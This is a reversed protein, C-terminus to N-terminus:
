RRGTEVDFGFEVTAVRPEPIPEFRWQMVAAMAPGTLKSHTSEVIQIRSLYGDEAVHFRVLVRGKRLTRLLEEDWEPDVKDISVLAESEEAEAPRPALASAAQAASQSQATTATSALLTAPTAASAQATVAPAAPAAPARATAPSRAPRAAAATPPAPAPAAAAAAAAAAAKREEAKRASESHIRIWRFPSEADRRARESIGAPVEGSNGPTQATAVSLTTLLAAALAVLRADSALSASREDIEHHTLGVM